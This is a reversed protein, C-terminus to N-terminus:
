KTAEEEAKPAAAPATTNVAPAAASAAPKAAVPKPAPKEVPLAMRPDREKERVEMRICKKPCKTACVGCGTCAANVVHPKRPEGAIAGFECNRKCMGCGICADRNIEAVLREEFSAWMANTPCAEACMMCHRCKSHDIVPINNVMTIADFKCAKVCKQCSICGINCVDSVKKGLDTNHCLPDVRQSVPRIQLVDRPCAEVCKGCSQCKDEDVVAIRRAKDIHIADFPCTKECTGLGLCAFRCKKDGDQVLTAAVCDQIGAYTFSPRCHDSTGHCMVRAVTRETAGVEIGMIEGIKAAVASGGVPCASVPAKGSAIADACGDCGPYGCGGCNAGPLCERVADRRPDSPVAFVKSVWTLLLGLLIGMGGLVLVAWVINM